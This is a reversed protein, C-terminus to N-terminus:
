LWLVVMGTVIQSRTVVRAQHALDADGAPMQPNVPVASVEASPSELSGAAATIDAREAGADLAWRGGLPESNLFGQLSATFLGAIIASKWLAEKAAHSTMLQAVVFALVLLITSHVAYTALWAAISAATM